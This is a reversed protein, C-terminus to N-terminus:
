GGRGGHGDLREWQGPKSGPLINYRAEMSGTPSFVQLHVAEPRTIPPIGGERAAAENITEMTGTVLATKPLGNHDRFMLNDGLQPTGIATTM